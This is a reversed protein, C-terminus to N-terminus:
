KLVGIVTNDIFIIVTQGKLTLSDPYLSIFLQFENKFYVKACM